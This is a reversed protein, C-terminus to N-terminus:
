RPVSPRTYRTTCGRGMHQENRGRLHKDNPFLGCLMGFEWPARAGIIPPPIPAPQPTGTVSDNPMVAVASDSVASTTTPEAQSAVAIEAVRDETAAGDNSAANTPETAPAQPPAPETITPEEGGTITTTAIVAVSMTADGEDGSTSTNTTESRGDQTPDVTTADTGAPVDPDIATSTGADSGISPTIPLTAEAAPESTKTQSGSTRTVEAQGKRQITTQQDRTARDLTTSATLTEENFTVKGTKVDRAPEQKSGKDVNTEVLIEAVPAVQEASTVAVEKARNTM